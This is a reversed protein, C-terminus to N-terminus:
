VGAQICQYCCGLSPPPPPSPSPTFIPYRVKDGIRSLYEARKMLADRSEMEGFNKEADSIAADMKELEAQNASTLKDLLEKDVPLQLESCLSSYFPAM